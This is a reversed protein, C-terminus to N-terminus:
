ARVSASSTGRAMLGPSEAEASILHLNMGKPFIKSCSNRKDLTHYNAALSYPPPSPTKSPSLKVTYTATSPCMLHHVLWVQPRKGQLDEAPAGCECGAERGKQCLASNKYCSHVPNDSTGNTYASWTLARETNLRLLWAWPSHIWCPM